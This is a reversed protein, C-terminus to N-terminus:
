CLSFFFFFVGGCGAVECTCMKKKQRGGGLTKQRGSKWVSSLIVHMLPFESCEDWGATHTHTHTHTIGPPSHCVPLSGTRWDRGPVFGTM